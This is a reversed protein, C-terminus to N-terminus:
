LRLDLQEPLMGLYRKMRKYTRYSVNDGQRIRRITAYPIGCRAEAERLSFYRVSQLFARITNHYDDGFM